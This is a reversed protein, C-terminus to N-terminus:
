CIKLVQSASNLEVCRTYCAEWILLILLRFGVSRLKLKNTTRIEAFLDTQPSHSILLARFVELLCLMSEKYEDRAM